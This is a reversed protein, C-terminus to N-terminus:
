IRKVRDQGIFTWLRPFSIFSYIPLRLLAFHISYPPFVCIFPSPLFHSFNPPYVSLIAMSSVNDKSTFLWLWPVLPSYLSLLPINFFFCPSYMPSIFLLLSHIQWGLPRTWDEKGQTSCQCRYGCKGWLVGACFGCGTKSMAQQSHCHRERLRFLPMLVNTQAVGERPRPHEKYVQRIKRQKNEEWSM